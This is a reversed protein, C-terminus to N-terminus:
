KVLCSPRRKRWRLILMGFSMAFVTATDFTICVSMMHELLMPGANPSWEARLKVLEDYYEDPPLM